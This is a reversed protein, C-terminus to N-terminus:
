KVERCYFLINFNIDFVIAFIQYYKGSNKDIVAPRQYSSGEPIWDFIFDVIDFISIKKSETKKFFYDQNSLVNMLLYVKDKELGKRYTQTFNMSLINLNLDNMDENFFYINPNIGLKNVIDRM